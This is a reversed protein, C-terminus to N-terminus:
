GVNDLSIPYKGLIKRWREYRMTKHKKNGIPQEWLSVLSQNTVGLIEAVDKQTLGHIKRLIKLNNPTYGFEIEEIEINQTIALFQLWRPYLMKKGDASEWELVASRHVDLANALEAQTLGAAIRMRKLNNPTYGIEIM